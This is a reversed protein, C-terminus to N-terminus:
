KKTKAKQGHKKAHHRSTKAPLVKVKAIRTGTVAGGVKVPFKYLGRARKRSRVRLKAVAPGGAPVSAVTFCKPAMLGKKAKKTLKACVMVKGSATGGGNALKVEIVAVKGARVKVAHKAVLRFRVSPPTPQPPPAPAPAPAPTVRKPVTVAAGASLQTTAGSRNTATVACTYVGSATANLTPGTAGPIARGNVLWQYAYALPAAYVYSGPYDPEWSGQSCSLATGSAAVQPTGTGVPSKLIVPDQPADVPATAVTIGGGGGPVLTTTGFAGKREEENGSNGWYFRGVSPDFAMGYPENIAAGSIDIGGGGVGSTSLWSVYTEEEPANFFYLRGAAPDVDIATWGNPAEASPVSLDGGGSGNLNAYSVEGGQSVWYVRNLGTDIALKYPEHVRAAGTNLAGGIGGSASAYGISGNPADNAWYVTQTRPDVAVGAPGEVPAGGTALVGGGSGDVNVWDIRNNEYSAVYLRGNAPDYAMGEPGSIEAGATNLPGGGIGDINAFAMTNAEYNDWYITESARARAAIALLALIAFTAAAAILAIRRGVGLPEALQKLDRKGKEDIGTM